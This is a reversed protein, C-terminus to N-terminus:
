SNSVDRVTLFAQYYDDTPTAADFFRQAFIGDINNEVMYQFHKEIVPTCFSNFFQAHSGNALIFDTTQWCEPPYDDVYPLVNTKM